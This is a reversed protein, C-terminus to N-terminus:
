KLRGTIVTRPDLIDRLGDGVFNFAMVTIFIFLGPILIWPHFKIESISMARTLMNGWSAYPEMIGLGLLSLASEGLIYGPISITGAVITYSFTQPLLHRILIRLTGGGLAKTALIYERERLSLVMGRIVRALGPWGLFSLITIIMIYVTISSMSLPFVARLALMLYFTPFSMLLEVLRMIITDIKGSFYGSIGGIILGLILSIGVGIIGISLSIRSGYIIRSLIDRGNWDSGFLYIKAPEDVGFLHGNTFFKIYYKKGKIPTYIRKGEILEMKYEYIYPLPDFRPITPPHYAKQRTEKDFPYPAFFDAFIAIFYLIFLIIGGILAMKHRLLKHIPNQIQNKTKSKQKEMITKDKPRGM